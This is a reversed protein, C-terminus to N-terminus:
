AMWDAALADHETAAGKDGVVKGFGPQHPRELDADRGTEGVARDIGRAGQPAGAHLRKAIPQHGFCARCGALSL